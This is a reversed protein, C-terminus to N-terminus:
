KVLRLDELLGIAKNELDSLSGDNDIVLDYDLHDVATESPHDNVPGVGPRDIRINLGGNEKVARFENPFRVDTFIYNEAPNLSRMLADVWVDEGLVKRGAETGLVQLFNRLETFQVKAETYGYLDLMEQYTIGCGNEVKLIPNLVSAFKRLADAFGKKQFGHQLLAEAFSDKGSTAYGSLAIIM